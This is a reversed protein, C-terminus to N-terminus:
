YQKHTNPLEHAKSGWFLDMEMKWIDQMELRPAYEAQPNNKSRKPRNEINKTIKINDRYKPVEEAESGQFLETEMKQLDKM